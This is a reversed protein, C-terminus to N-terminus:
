EQEPTEENRMAKIMLHLQQNEHTLEEINSNLDALQDDGDFRYNYKKDYQRYGKLAALMKYIPDAYNSVIFFILMLILLLGVSMTVVVPIISRYLGSDFKESNAQLDSYIASSMDDIDDRLANFRPQLREFYWTRSDIFDSKLVETLELSTLMYASYSYAVSDALPSYVNSSLSSRLSDCSSLFDTADFDPLDKLSEDGIVALIDLNYSNSIDALKRATNIKNIDNAILTSVYDRMQSYELVSITSSALLTVAIASLGLVLKTKMSLKM